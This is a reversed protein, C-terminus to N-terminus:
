ATNQAMLKMVCVYTTSVARTPAHPRPCTWGGVCPAVMTVLAQKRETQPWGLLGVDEGGAVGTEETERPHVQVGNDLEPAGNSRAEMSLDTLGEDMFLCSKAGLRPRHNRAPHAKEAAVEWHLGPEPCGSEHIQLFQLPKPIKELFSLLKCRQM